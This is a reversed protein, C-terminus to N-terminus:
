FKGGAGGGGSKGGGWKKGGGKGFLLPIFFFIRGRTIVTLVIVVAAVLVLQWFTLPIWSIPYPSKEKVPAGTYNGLIEGGLYDVTEYIGDYYLSQNLYPVLHVTCINGVLADPLAGELGYGVEVRWQREDTSVVLLMGNNEKTQGIHNEQFTNYTYLFIGDPQTTNVVLVAMEAGTEEYVTACLEEVSAIEGSTMAGANDTVYNTLTPYDMAPAVASLMVLTVVTLAISARMM